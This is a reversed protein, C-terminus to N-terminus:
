ARLLGDHSATDLESLKRHQRELTEGSFAFNVVAVRRGPMVQELQWAVLSGVSLGYLNFPVGEASSEGVVVINITDGPPDPLDTRLPIDAPMGSLGPRGETEGVRDPGALALVGLRELRVRWVSAAGEAFCLSLLLSCSLLFWSCVVGPRAIRRRRATVLLFSLVPAAVLVAIMVSGYAVELGILVALKTRWVTEKSTQDEVLLLVLLGGLLVASVVLSLIALRTLRRPDGLGNM